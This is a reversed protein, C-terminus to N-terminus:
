CNLIKLIALSINKLMDLNEVLLIYSKELPHILRSMNHDVRAGGIEKWYNVNQVCFWMSMNFDLAFHQKTNFFSGINAFSLHCYPLEYDIYKHVSYTNHYHHYVRPIVHM